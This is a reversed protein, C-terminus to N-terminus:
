ASQPRTNNAMTNNSSVVRVHIDKNYIPASSASWPDGGHGVYLYEQNENIDSNMYSYDYDAQRTRAGGLIKYVDPTGNDALAM